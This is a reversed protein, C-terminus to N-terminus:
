LIKKNQQSSASIRSTDPNLISAQFRGPKVRASADPGVPLPLRAGAWSDVPMRSKLPHSAPAGYNFASLAYGSLAKKIRSPCDFVVCFTRPFSCYVFAIQM